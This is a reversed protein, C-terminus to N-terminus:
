EQGQSRLTLAGVLMFIGAILAGGASVGLLAKAGLEAIVPLAAAALVTAFGAIRWDKDTPLTNKVRLGMFLILVGSLGLILSAVLTVWLETHPVILMLVAGAAQVMALSRWVQVVSGVEVEGEVPQQAINSAGVSTYFSAGGFAALYGAFVLAANDMTPTQWFVTVLGFIIFVLSLVLTPAFLARAASSNVTVLKTLKPAPTGAQPRKIAPPRFHM